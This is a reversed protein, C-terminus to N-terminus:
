LVLDLRPLPEFYSGVVSVARLTSANRDLWRLSVLMEDALDLPLPGQSPPGPDGPMAEVLHGPDVGELTETASSRPPPWHRTLRGRHLEFRHGTRDDIVELVKTRRLREFGRQRSIADAFARVRDRVVAAEEFRESAALEHMTAVLPDIVLRPQGTM